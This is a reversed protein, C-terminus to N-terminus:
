RRKDPEIKEIIKYNKSATGNFSIYYDNIKNAKAIYVTEKRNNAFDKANNKAISYKM